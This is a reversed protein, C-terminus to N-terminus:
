AQGVEPSSTVVTEVLSATRYSVLKLSANKVDYIKYKLLCLIRIFKIQSWTQRKNEQIYNSGRQHLIGCFSLVSASRFPIIRKKRDHLVIHTRHQTHLRPIDFEDEFMLSKTGSTNENKKSLRQM